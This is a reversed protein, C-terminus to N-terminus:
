KTRSWAQRRNESADYATVNLTEFRSAESLAELTAYTAKWYDDVIKSSAIKKLGVLIDWILGASIVDETDTGDLAYMTGDQTTM